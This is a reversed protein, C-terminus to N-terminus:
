TECWRRAFASVDQFTGRLRRAQKNRPRQLPIQPDAHEPLMRRRFPSVQSLGVQEQPHVIKGGPPRKQGTTVEELQCKLASRDDRRWIMQFASTVDAQMGLYLRLVKLLNQETEELQELNAAAGM